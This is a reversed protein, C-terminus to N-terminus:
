EHHQTLYRVIKKSNITTGLANLELIKEAIGVRLYLVVADWRPCYCYGGWM